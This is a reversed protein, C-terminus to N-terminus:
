GAGMLAEIQQLLLCKRAWLRDIETGHGAAGQEQLQDIQRQVAARERDLRSRRLTKVCDAAAAPAHSQRGIEEVIGAERRTLREILTAPLAEPPLDQLSRAQELIGQTALGETDGPELEALAQM